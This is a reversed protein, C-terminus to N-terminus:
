TTYGELWFPQLLWVHNLGIPRGVGVNQPKGVWVLLLVMCAGSGTSTPTSNPLGVLALLLSVLPFNCFAKGCEHWCAKKGLLFKCDQKEPHQSGMGKELPERLKRLREKELFNLM